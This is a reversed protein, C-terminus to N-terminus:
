PNNKLTYISLPTWINSYVAYKHFTKMEIYAESNETIYLIANINNMWLLYDSIKVNKVPSDVEDLFKKLYEPTGNREFMARIKPSMASRESESMSKYMGMGFGMYTTENVSNGTHFNSYIVVYDIM